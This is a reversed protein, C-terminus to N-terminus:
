PTGDIRQAIIRVTNGNYYTADQAVNLYYDSGDKTIECILYHGGFYSPLQIANTGSVLMASIIYTNTEDWGVPLLTGIYNPTTTSITDTRYVTELHSVSTFPTITNIVDSLTSCGSIKTTNNIHDSNNNVVDKDFDIKSAHGIAESGSNVDHVHLFAGKLEIGVDRLDGTGVAGDKVKLRYLINETVTNTDQIKGTVDLTGTLLTSGTVGFTSIPDSTGGVRFKGNLYSYDFPNATFKIKIGSYYLIMQGFGTFSSELTACTAGGTPNCVNFLSSASGSTAKVALSKFHGDVGYNYGSTGFKSGIIVEDIFHRDELDEVNDWGGKINLGVNNVLKIGAISHDMIIKNVTTLM